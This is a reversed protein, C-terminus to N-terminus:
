WSEAYVPGRDFYGIKVANKSDTFDFVSLGGQVLGAGHHRARCRFSRGTTRWAIRSTTQPAPMKYYGGFVLKKDVIDFVADAGWSLLDTNRCRPQTGGGWEDSFLVKTGDNNFTASHWYAFADDSAADLRVPHV